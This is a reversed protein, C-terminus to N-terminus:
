GIDLTQVQVHGTHFGVRVVANADIIEQARGVTADKCGAIHAHFVLEGVNGVGCRPNGHAIGQERTMLPDTRQGDRPAGIGIGFDGMNADVHALGVFTANRYATKGHRHVLNIARDQIALLDAEDLDMHGLM